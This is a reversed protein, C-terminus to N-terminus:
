SRCYDTLQVDCTSAESVAELVVFRTGPNERALRAAEEEAYERSTHQKRPQKGNLRWVMWFSHPGNRASRSSSIYSSSIYHCKM